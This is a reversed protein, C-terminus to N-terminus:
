PGVLGAERAVVVAQARDTVHLKGFVNSAHNRATKASMGLRRAVEVNSLGAAILELVQRERETLDPFVTARRLADSTGVLDLLRGAVAPGFVADGRAVGRVAREIDGPAAGKLVYGRAGARIAALLTSDDDSMTLVLVAVHPSSVALRRTAEVGSVEPMNLDMVVVDPQVEEVQRLVEAGTTATGVVDIGPVDLLARLGALFVPHDDALVVSVSDHLPAGTTPDAM